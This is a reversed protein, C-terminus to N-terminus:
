PAPKGHSDEKSQPSTVKLPEAPGSTWVLSLLALAVITLWVHLTCFHHSWRTDHKTYESPLLATTEVFYGPTHMGLAQEVSILAARNNKAGRALGLMFHMTGIFLGIVLGALAVRQGVALGGQSILLWALGIALGSIWLTFEMSRERIKHSAAYRESLVALLTQFKQDDNMHM